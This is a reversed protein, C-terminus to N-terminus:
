RMQIEGVATLLPAFPEKATIHLTLDNVAEFQDVTAYRDRWIFEPNDQGFRALGFAADEAVFQRGNLPAKDQWHM